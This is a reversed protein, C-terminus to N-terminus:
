KGKQHLFFFSSLCLIEHIVLTSMHTNVITSLAKQDPQSSVHVNRDHVRLFSLIAELFALNCLFVYLCEFNM